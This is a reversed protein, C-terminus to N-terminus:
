GAHRHCEGDRSVGRQSVMHHIAQDPASRHGGPYCELNRVVCDDPARRGAGHSLRQQWRVPEVYLGSAAWHGIRGPGGSDVPISRRGHRGHLPDHVPGHCPWRNENDSRDNLWSEAIVFISAIAVGTLLRMLTWVWPLVAVAHIALRDLGNGRIGSYLRGTQDSAPALSSGFLFGVYYAAMVLGLVGTEFGALIGRVGLLTGQLGVAIMILTMGALLTVLTSLTARMPM